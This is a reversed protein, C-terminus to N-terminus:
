KKMGGPQCCMPLAKVAVQNAKVDDADYGMESIVKKIETESIKKSNFGVTVIKTGLDLEAFKVGKTYNLGKEIRTKCSGCEASTQIKMEQGFSLTSAFLAIILILNKM